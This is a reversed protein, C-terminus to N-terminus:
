DLSLLRRRRQTQDIYRQLARQADSDLARWECGLRRLGDGGALASLHQIQLTAKFRTDSDLEIAVGSLTLGPELAPVDAPLALACGGISVDIVRLGLQMEPIAPHRLRAAPSHRDLTRVRYAHRRQFRYVTSPLRAQLAVSRPGRVLLLNGLDFQLKVSDLYGVAVVEDADVIQQLAPHNDDATFNVRRQEADISWLEAVAAAGAPANLVVPTATDRLRRLLLAIEGPSDVRFPAWDHHADDGLPAPRTDEFM